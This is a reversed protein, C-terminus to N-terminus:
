TSGTWSSSRTTATGLLGARYIGIAVTSDAIGDVAYAHHAINIVVAGVKTVAGCAVVVFAHLANPVRVAGVPEAEQPSLTQGREASAGRADGIGPACGAGASRIDTGLCSSM